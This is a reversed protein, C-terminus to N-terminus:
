IGIHKYYFNSTRQGAREVFTDIRLAGREGSTYTGRYKQITSKEQNKATKTEHLCYRRYQNYRQSAKM